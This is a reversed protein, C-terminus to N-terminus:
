VPTSEEADDTMYNAKTGTFTASVSGEATASHVHTASPVSVSSRTPVSGADFSLTLCRNTVSATMAPLSGVGTISYINTTDTTASTNVATGTFNASVNGKPTIGYVMHHHWWVSRDDIDAQLAEATAPTVYDVDGTAASIVGNVSKLMSNAPTDKAAKIATDIQAGTYSSKYNAM